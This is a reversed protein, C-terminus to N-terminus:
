GRLAAVVDALRHVSRETIPDVVLIVEDAGAEALHRISAVIDDASGDIAPATDDDPREGGGGDVRVSLCASRRIDKPDRGAALAAETVAADLAAFRGPDNGFETFWTNWADVTPVTLELMRRGNSGVMLPMTRGAPAPPLLVADSASSWRGDFSVRRGHALPEIISYAEAFRAVRRDYALGFADFETRNWGAGLGLVFRGGSVEDISAAMKALVAPPHFATCAVLPGLEVRRTVAALAALTAFAEWPGREPRGGGRYLLHDGIWISDFGADEAASAIAALEPWRVVREVEPLQIGLRVPTSTMRPLTGTRDDIGHPAHARGRRGRVSLNLAIRKTSVASSVVPASSVAAAHASAPHDAATTGCWLVDDAPSAPSAESPVAKWPM